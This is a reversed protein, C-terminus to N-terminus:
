HKVIGFKYLAIIFIITFLGGFFSGVKSLVSGFCGGSSGSGAYNQTKATTTEHYTNAPAPSSVESSNASIKAM